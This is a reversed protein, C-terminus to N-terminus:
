RCRRLPRGYVGLSREERWTVTLTAVGDRGTEACALIWYILERLSCDTGPLVVSAAAPRSAVHRLLTANVPEKTVACPADPSAGRRRSASSSGSSRSM